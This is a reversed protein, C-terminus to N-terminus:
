YIPPQRRVSFLEYNATSGVSRFSSRFADRNAGLQFSENPGVVVYDIGYKEILRPADPALAYISRLDAERESYDYGHSWLWGPYSMMVQRGTLMPVPHNHQLGVAIVSGAETNSRVLAAFEIEERSLMPQREKGTLQGLNALLGSATMTLFTVALLFRVAPARQSRWADVLLGAVLISSAYFWYLLVKTNDWDWPQFVILNAAIFLPMFALLFRRADPPVLDRRFLAFLLLPLFLGLNKLWFFVWSDPPAIWGAQMRIASAPGAGGGQQILVQPLGIAAWVGFYFLWNKSPFLLFLFPTIIVLSLLTSLNAFPLLGAVFGAFLFLRRRDSRVGEFLITLILLGLPVGYLFSRQPQLLSFFVNQYRFNAAEQAVGDWPNTRLVQLVSNQEDMAAVTLLWGVTGGFLFLAVALSAVTNDGCLRRAFVYLGILIFISLLFGQLTLASTVPLGFQVMAAATISTLYHYSYAFGSLRPNQPPFNEGVAFSMVDGIHLAWDAWFGTNGAFLGSEDERYGSWWFITWRLAIAGLILAPVMGAYRVFWGHSRAGDTTKGNRSKKKSRASTEADESAPPGSPSQRLILLGAAATVAAVAGSVFPNLGTVCAAALITLSGIVIGLPPGFAAVELPDLADGAWRKLVACGALGFAALFLIAAATALLQM